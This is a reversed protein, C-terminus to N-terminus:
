GKSSGSNKLIENDMATCCDDLANILSRELELTEGFLGHQSEPILTPMIDNTQFNPCGVSTSNIYHQPWPYMPPDSSNRLGDFPVPPVGPQRNSPISLVGANTDHHPTEITGVKKHKLNRTEQEEVEVLNQKPNQNRKTECPKQIKASIQIKKYVRCLVWDNLRMINEPTQVPAHSNKVTFENMIWDTKIDGPHKGKYFVLSKKYGIEENDYIIPKDSGTAKWFGDGASRSPRTGNKYKKDRPTFFYWHGKFSKFMGTLNDPSFDYLNVVHIRNPPLMEQKIKQTLYELLEVDTPRFRYGRIMSAVYADINQECEGSM